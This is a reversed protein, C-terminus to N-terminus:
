ARDAEDRGGVPVRRLHLHHDVVDRGGAPEALPDSPHETLRRLLLDAVVEVAKLLCHFAAGALRGGGPLPSTMVPSPREVSTAATDACSAVSRAPLDTIMVPPVVPMPRAVACRRAPWPARTKTNPRCSSSRCSVIPVAPVRSALPPAIWPVTASWDLCSSTSRTKRSASSFIPPHSMRMLLAATAPPLTNSFAMGSM